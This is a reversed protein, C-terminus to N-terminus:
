AFVSKYSIDVMRSKRRFHHVTRVIIWTAIATLVCVVVVGAVHQPRGGLVKVVGQLVAIQVLYGLLSYQGLVVTQRGFWGDMRLHLACCYLLLVSAIAAFIQVSYTDGFFYSCLRYAVYLLLIPAWKTALRNITPMPILGLAMGIFGVSIFDLNKMENGSGELAVCLLFLAVACGTISGSARARLWLLVPALLLFYAIPLLVEFIGERGNGTIFISSARIAFENAGGLLSHELAVCRAFNLVAFVALLKLGRTALRLYPKWTDLDYKAAYVQGVLFGTILIFSPPLFALFKFALPRFASYNIGHYIVMCIILSGKTWDLADIRAPRRSVRADPRHETASLTM